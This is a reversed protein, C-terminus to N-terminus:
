ASIQWNCDIILWRHIKFFVTVSLTHIHPLSKTAFIFKIKSNLITAKNDELKQIGDLDATRTKVVIMYLSLSFYISDHWVYSHVVRFVYSIM